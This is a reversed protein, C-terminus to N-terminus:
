DFGNYDKSRSTSEVTYDLISDMAASGNSEMRFSGINELSFYATGSVPIYIIGLVPKSYHMLAINVTFEGNRKVFEKTGDLPDIVWFYEWDKREEYPIDKGEESLMPIDPFSGELERKIIEHSKKDALTLPSEDKKYEVNFSTNYVSLIAKGSLHSAKLGIILLQELPIGSNKQM